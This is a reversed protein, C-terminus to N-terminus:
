SGGRPMRARPPVTASTRVTSTSSSVSGASRRPSTGACDVRLKRQYQEALAPDCLRWPRGHHDGARSPGHGRARRTGAGRPRPAEVLDLSGRDFLPPDGSDTEIMLNDIGCGMRLAVIHEVMRLYNHPSGSRLVINRQATLRQTDLGPDATAGAPRYAQDM